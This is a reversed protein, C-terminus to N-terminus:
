GDIEIEEEGGSEDEVDELDPADAAEDPLTIDVSVYDFSITEDITADATQGDQEVSSETTQEVQVPRDSEQSIWLTMSIDDFSFGDQAEAGFFHEEMASEDVDVSLVYVDEGDHETEGELTADANEMFVTLENTVDLAEFQEDFNESVDQKVWESGYQQENQDSGTYLTDNLLYGSSEATGLQSTQTSDFEIEQADRDIAADQEQQQEVEQGDQSQVQDTTQSVEFEELAELETVANARLDDASVDADVPDLDAFEDGADGGDGNTGDADGDDSEDAAPDEEGNTDNIEDAGNDDSDGLGLCGATLVLVLVALLATQKRTGPWNLMGM